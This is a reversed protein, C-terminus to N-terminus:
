PAALSDLAARLSQRLPPLDARIAAWVAHLDVLFYGHALVNRM